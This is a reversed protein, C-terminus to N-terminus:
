GPASPKLWVSIEKKQFLDDLVEIMADIGPRRIILDDWVFYDQEPESEEMLRKVEDVTFMTATWHSGDEDLYVHVDLDCCLEPSADLGVIFTARFGPRIFHWFCGDRWGTPQSARSDVDFSV